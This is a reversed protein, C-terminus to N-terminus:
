PVQSASQAKKNKGETVKARKLHGGSLNQQYEFYDGLSM